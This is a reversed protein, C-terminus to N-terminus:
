FIFLSSFSQNNFCIFSFFNFKLVDVVIFVKMRRDRNAKITRTAQWSSSPLPLPLSSSQLRLLSNSPFHVASSSMLHLLHKKLAHWLGPWIPKFKMKQCLKWKLSFKFWFMVIRTYKCLRNKYAIMQYVLYKNSWAHAQNFIYYFYITRLLELSDVWTHM